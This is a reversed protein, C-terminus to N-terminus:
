LLVEGGVGVWDAGGNVASGARYNRQPYSAFSFQERPRDLVLQYRKHCIWVQRESTFRSSILLVARIEPEVLPMPKAMALWSAASPARTITFPRESFVTLEADCCIRVATGSAFTSLNAPSRALVVAVSSSSSSKGATSM